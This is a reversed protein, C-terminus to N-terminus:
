LKLTEDLLKLVRKSEDSVGDETANDQLILLRSGKKTPLALVDQIIKQQALTAHVRVGSYKQRNFTYTKNELKTKEGYIKKLQESFSKPTMAVSEYQHIMIVANNGDLTWMKIGETSFDAEFAFHSPYKFAVQGHTFLREKDPVLTVTPNEFRGQVQVDKGPVLRVTENNLRLTYGLAPEQDEAALLLTAPFLLILTSLVKMTRPHSFAPSYSLLLDGAAHGRLLSVM